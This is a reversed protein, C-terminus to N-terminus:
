MTRSSALSPTRVRATADDCLTTTPDPLGGDYVITWIGLAKAASLYEDVWNTRQTFFTDTVLVGCRWGLREILAPLQSRAGRAIV